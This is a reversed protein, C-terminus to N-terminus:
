IYSVIKSLTFSAIRFSHDNNEHFAANFSLNYATEFSFIHGSSERLM